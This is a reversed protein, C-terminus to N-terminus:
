QVPVAYNKIRQWVSFFYFRYLRWIPGIQSETESLFNCKLGNQLLYGQTSVAIIFSVVIGIDKKTYTSSTNGTAGRWFKTPNPNNQFSGLPLTLKSKEVWLSCLCFYSKKFCRTKPVYCVVWSFETQSWEIWQGNKKSLSWCDVSPSKGLITWSYSMFCCIDEASYCPM